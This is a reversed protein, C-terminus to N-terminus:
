ARSRRKAEGQGAGDLFWGVLREGMGEARPKPGFRIIARLGGLLMLVGLQPEEVRFLGESQGRAFIDIVLSQTRDRIKQWPFEADPKQRAEAHQILDFLHPQEDFYTLIAEIVEVLQRRPCSSKRIAEELRVMIDRSARELLALYLEEKDKFYRYLTGKGVGALAAVDDMRAEHFRHTAFLRAAATLIREALLPTRTRAM